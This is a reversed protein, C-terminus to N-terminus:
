RSEFGPGDLGLLDSNITITANIVNVSDCVACNASVIILLVCTGVPNIRNMCYKIYKVVVYFTFTFFSNEV